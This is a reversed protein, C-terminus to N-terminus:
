DAEKPHLGRYIRIGGVKYSDGATYLGMVGGGAEKAAEWCDTARGQTSFKGQGTGHLSDHSVDGVWFAVSGASGGQLIYPINEHQGGGPGPDKDAAGLQEVGKELKGDDGYLRRRRGALGVLNNICPSRRM